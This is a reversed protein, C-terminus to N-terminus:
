AGRILRMLRDDVPPKGSLTLAALMVNQRAGITPEGPLDPIAREFRDVADDVFRAVESHTFRGATADTRSRNRGVIAKCAAVRAFVKGRGVLAV